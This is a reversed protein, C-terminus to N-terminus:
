NIEIGRNFDQKEFCVCVRKNLNNGCGACIGKCDNKCLLKIPYDIIIEERAIQTIDIVKSESAPKIIDIAKSIDYYGPELCRGCNFEGRGHIMLHIRIDDFDRNIRAEIRVSNNFVIDKRQLDLEQGSNNEELTLGDKPIESVNVKM